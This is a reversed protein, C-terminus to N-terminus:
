LNFHTKLKQDDLIKSIELIEIHKKVGFFNAVFLIEEECPYPYIWVSKQLQFFGLNRLKWRFANRAKKFRIPLDYIVLRWKKDWKKPNKIEIDDIVINRLHSEGKPTLLYASSKEAKVHRVFKYRRLGSFAKVVKKDDYFNLSLKEGLAIDCLITKALDLRNNGVKVIKRLRSLHKEELM